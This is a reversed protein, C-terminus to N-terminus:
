SCYSQPRFGWGFNTIPREFTYRLFFCPASSVYRLARFVYQLARFVYQLASFVYQLARFVFQVSDYQPASFVHQLASFVIMSYHVSYMSM